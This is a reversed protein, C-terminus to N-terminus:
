IASRKEVREIRLGGVNELVEIQTEGEENRSFRLHVSSQGIRLDRLEVWPLWEPLLPDLILTNLSALPEIGLISQLHLSLATVSWAQLLNAYPYLGPIPVEESRQHGSFVEPLRMHQFLTAIGLQAGIVQLAEAKFGARSMGYAITANEVPWVSGRHYSFPDFAPNESDLTRIGWGSFMRPSLLREIVSSYRDAELIGSVLCHGANSAIADIKRKQGDLALAIFRKEPMWFEHNFREKLQAALGRLSDARDAEAFIEYILAAENLAHYAHSQIEPLALPPFCVRGQGDVIADSSDKWGQNQNSDISGPLAPAYYIFGKGQELRWVVWNLCDEFAERHRELFGRDGSWRFGNALAIIWFPTAAVDGYYLSRNTKGTESAPGLRREHPLRHLEEDRWDDRRVGRYAAVRNLASDLLSPALLSAQWASVV